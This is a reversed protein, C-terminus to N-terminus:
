LKPALSFLVRKEGREEIRGEYHRVLLEWRKLLADIERKELTTKLRDRVEDQGIGKLQKWLTSEIHTLNEKRLLQNLPYFSRTHDILWLNWDQDILSNGLNRDDNHILADFIWRLQRTLAWEQPRPSNLKRDVRDGETMAGDIYIQLSGNRGDVKRLVAPPVLKLGLMRNLEYAAVEFKADDRYNTRITGHMEARAVTVEVDRFVGTAEIGGKELWVRFPQNVGKRIRKKSVVRATRLFELVEEETAFSSSGRWSRTQDAQAALNAAILASVLGILLLQFPTERSERFTPKM